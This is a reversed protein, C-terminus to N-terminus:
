PESEKAIAEEELVDIAADTAAYEADIIAKAKDPGGAAAVAAKILQLVDPAVALLDDEISM